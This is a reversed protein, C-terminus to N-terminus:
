GNDGEQAETSSVAGDPKPLIIPMWHTVKDLCLNTSADYWKQTEKDYYARNWTSYRLALVDKINEPPRESVPIWRHKELEAQLKDVKCQWCGENSNNRIYYDHKCEM